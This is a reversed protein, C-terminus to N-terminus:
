RVPAAAGTAQPAQTRNTPSREPTFISIACILVPIAILLAVALRTKRRAYQLVVVAGCILLALAFCIRVSIPGPVTESMIKAPIAVAAGMPVGAFLVMMMMRDLSATVSAIAALPLVTCTVVLLVWGLPDLLSTIEWHRASGIEGWLIGCATLAPLYIFLLVFLLKAAFLKVWEYPRTIWFQRDGVLREAHVVSAVLVWWCVPVLLTLIGWLIPLWQPDGAGGRMLRPGSIVFYSPISVWATTLFLLIVIEGWFLRIDKKFIHLIQKM